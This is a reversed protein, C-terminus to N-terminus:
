GQAGDAEKRAWYKNKKYELIHKINRRYSRKRKELLCIRCRRRKESYMVTNEPSYEHGNQCHTKAKNKAALTEGRLVNEGITVVELHEPNVCKRNRCLHDIVLGVPPMSGTELLYMIRHAMQLKKFFFMHGYGDDRVAGGWNWCSDTKEIRSMFLAVDDKSM